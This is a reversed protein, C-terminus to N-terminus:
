QNIFAQLILPQSLWKAKYYEIFDGSNEPGQKCIM